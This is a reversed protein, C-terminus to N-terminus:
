ASRVRELIANTEDRISAFIGHDRTALLVQENLGGPTLCADAMQDLTEASADLAESALSHFLTTTYTAADQPDVGNETMWAANSRLFEFFFGMLASSGVFTSFTSEDAVEIVTGIRSLLAHVSPHPPHLPIPGLGHRNPPMPIVRVVDLDPVNVLARVRALELSAVVSVLTAHPRWDIAALVDAAQEPLVCLFVIDAQDVVDQNSAAVEVSEREAALRHSREPSRSSLMIRGDFRGADLLGVIMAEAIAGTGLFGLTPPGASTNM